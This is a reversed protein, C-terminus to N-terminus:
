DITFMRLGDKPAEGRLFRFAGDKLEYTEIYADTTFPVGGKTSWLHPSFWVEVLSRDGKPAVERLTGYWGNIRCHHQALWRFHQLRGATPAPPDANFQDCIGQHSGAIPTISTGRDHPGNARAAQRVLPLDAPVNCATIALTALIIRIRM